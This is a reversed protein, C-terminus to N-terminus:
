TGNGVGPLKSKNPYDPRKPIVIPHAAMEKKLEAIAAEIQADRGQRWLYPDLEVEQDPATGWNEIIWKGTKSNYMADDPANISGGDIVGFGYASLMAGWTRKGILPGVKDQRFLYPFIDGGSGAMENILMVKPGLVSAVPIKIEQGYRTHSMFDLPKEMERVMWDNIYGGHNFRDDVIMGTRDAQAYYYRNFAEWGGLSTDPVHVYGGKGDTMKAVLRRNDEEWAQNRLGFESAVPVVTVERSGKGDATPGLRVKVQKGAKGELTEYLDTAELLDKGDIALIFEGPKADIGPQALPAYL